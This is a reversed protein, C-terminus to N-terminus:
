ILSNWDWEERKGFMVYSSAIEKQGGDIQQYVFPKHQKIERKNFSLILDGRRDLRVKRAGAFSLRISRPDSGPSVVFDYELDQQNGYYVMDIGPYVQEYKVRAYNPVNTQWNEPNNGLFYNSKGPLEDLGTVRPTSDRDTFVVFM